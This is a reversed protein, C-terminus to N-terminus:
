CDSPSTVIKGENEESDHLQACVGTKDQDHERVQNARGPPFHSIIVASSYLICFPSLRKERDSAHHSSRRSKGIGKLRFKECYISFPQQKMAYSKQESLFGALFSFLRIVV